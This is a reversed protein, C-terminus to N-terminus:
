HQFINQNVMKMLLLWQSISAFNSPVFIILYPFIACSINLNTACSDFHIKVKLYALYISKGINNNNKSQKNKYYM